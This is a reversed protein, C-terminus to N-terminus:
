KQDTTLRMNLMEHSLAFRLMDKLGCCLRCWMSDLLMNSKGEHWQRNQDQARPMWEHWEVGDTLM